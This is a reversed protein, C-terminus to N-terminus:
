KISGSIEGGSLCFDMAEQPSNKELADFQEYSMRQTKVVDDNMNKHSQEGNWFDQKWKEPQAKYWESLDANMKRKRNWDDIEKQTTM